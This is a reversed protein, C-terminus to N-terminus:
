NMGVNLPLALATMALLVYWSRSQLAKAIFSGSVAGPEAVKFDKWRVFLSRLWYKYQFDPYMISNRKSTPDLVWFTCGSSWVLGKAKQQVNDIDAQESDAKVKVVKAKLGFTPLISREAWLSRLIPKMARLAFNIQCETIYLVSGHGSATNPGMM